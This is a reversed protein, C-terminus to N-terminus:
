SLLSSNLWESLLIGLFGNYGTSVWLFGNYGYFGMSAWLFGCLNVMAGDCRCDSPRLTVKICRIPNRSPSFFNNGWFPKLVNSPFCCYSPKRLKM